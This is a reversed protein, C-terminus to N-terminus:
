NDILEIAYDNIETNELLEAASEASFVDIFDSYKALITVPAKNAILLAIQATWSPHIIMKIGFALSAVDM